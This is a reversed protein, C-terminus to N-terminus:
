WYSTVWCCPLHPWPELLPQIELVHSLGEVLLIASHGANCRWCDWSGWQMSWLRGARGAAGTWPRQSSVRDVWSSEWPSRQSGVQRRGMRVEPAWCVFVGWGHSGVTRMYCGPTEQCLEELVLVESIRLFLWTKWESELGPPSLDALVDWTLLSLWREPDWLNATPSLTKFQQGNNVNFECCDAQLDAIIVIWLFLGKTLRAQLAKSVYNCRLAFYFLFESKRKGLGHVISDKKCCRFAKLCGNYEKM